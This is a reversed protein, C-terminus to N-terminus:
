HLANSKTIIPGQCYSFRSPSISEKPMNLCYDPLDVRFDSYEPFLYPGISCYSGHKLLSCDRACKGHRRRSALSTQRQLSQIRPCPLNSKITSYSGDVEVTLKWWTNGMQLLDTATLLKMTQGSQLRPNSVSKSISGIAEPVELQSPLKRLRLLM